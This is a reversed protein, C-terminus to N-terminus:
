TQATQATQTIIVALWYVDGFLPSLLWFTINLSVLVQIRSNIAIISIFEGFGLYILSKGIELVM